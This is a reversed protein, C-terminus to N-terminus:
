ENEGITSAAKMKETLRQLLKITKVEVEKSPHLKDDLWIFAMSLQKGKLVEVAKTLEHKNKRYAERIQRKVRNRKVARKFHKKSVSVLVRVAPKCKTEASESSSDQGNAEVDTETLVYVARLPYVVISRSDANGFLKEIADRGYLREEKTLTNTHEASM